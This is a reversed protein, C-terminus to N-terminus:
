WGWLREKIEKSENMSVINQNSRDIYVNYTILQNCVSCVLLKVM